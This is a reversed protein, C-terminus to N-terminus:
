GWDVTSLRLWWVAVTGGTSWVCVCVCVCVCVRVRVGVGVRVCARVCVCVRACACLCVCNNNWKRTCWCWGTSVLCFLCAHQVTLHVTCKCSTEPNLHYTLLLLTHVFHGVAWFLLCRVYFGRGMAWFLLCHVYVWSWSHLPYPQRHASSWGCDPICASPWGHALIHASLPSRPHSTGLFHVTRIWACALLVLYEICIYEYLKTQTFDTDHIRLQISDLTTNFQKAKKEITLIQWEPLGAM